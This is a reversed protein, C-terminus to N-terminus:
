CILKGIAYGVNLYTEYVWDRHNLLGSMITNCMSNRTDQKKEVFQIHLLIKLYESVVTKEKQQQTMQKFPTTILYDCESEFINMIFIVFLLQVAFANMNINM